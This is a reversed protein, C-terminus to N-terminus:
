QRPVKGNRQAEASLRDVEARAKDETLGRNLVKQNNPDTCDVVDYTQKGQVPGTKSPRFVIRKGGSVTRVNAGMDPKIEGIDPLVFEQGVQLSNPDKLDPNAKMFADLADKYKVGPYKAKLITSLVEGRKVTHTNPKVLDGEKTDYCYEPKPAPTVVPTPEPPPPIRKFKDVEAKIADLHALANRLERTRPVTNQSGIDHELVAVIIARDYAKNGTIQGAMQVIQNGINKNDNHKYMKVFSALKEASAGAVAASCEVPRKAAGALFALAPAAILGAPSLAAVAEAVATASAFADASATAKATATAIATAYKTVEEHAGAIRDIVEEGTEPDFWNYTKGPVDAVATAEATASSTTTVVNTAEAHSVAERTDQAHVKHRTLLYSLGMTAAVPAAEIAGNTLRKGIPHPAEFGYTHFLHRVDSMSVGLEKSIINQETYNLRGDGGTLDILADQVKDTDVQNYPLPKGNEDKFINALEKWIAKEEPSSAADLHQQATSALMNLVIRDQDSALVIKQGKTAPNDKAKEYDAKDFFVERKVLKNTAKVNDNYAKTVGKMGRYDSGTTDPGQAAKYSQKVREYEEKSTTRANTAKDLNAQANDRKQKAAEVQQTTAKGMRMQDEAKAAEKAANKWEKNYKKQAKKAAKREAKMADKKNRLNEAGTIITTEGTAEDYYTYRAMRAQEQAITHKEKMKKPAKIDATLVGNESNIVIEETIIGKQSIEKMKAVADLEEQRQTVKAALEEPTLEVQDPNVEVTTGASTGGFRAKRLNYEEESIKNEKFDAELNERTYPAGDVIIMTVESPKKEGDGDFMAKRQAYTEASIKGSKKDSELMERTYPQSNVLIASVKSDTM